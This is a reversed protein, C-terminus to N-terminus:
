GVTVGSGRGKLKRPSWYASAKDTDPHRFRRISAVGVARSVAAIAEAVGNSLQVDSCERRIAAKVVDKAMCGIAGLGVRDTRGDIWPMFAGNDVVTAVLHTKVKEIGAADRAPQRCHNGDGHDIVIGLICNGLNRIELFAAIGDGVHFHAFLRISLVGQGLVVTREVQLPGRREVLKIRSEFKSARNELANVFVNFNPGIGLSFGGPHAAEEIVQLRMAPNAIKREHRELVIGELRAQQLPASKIFFGVENTVNELYPAIVSQRHAHRHKDRFRVDSSTRVFGKEIGKGRKPPSIENSREEFSPPIGDIIEMVNRQSFGEATMSRRRTAEAQERHVPLILNLLRSRLKERALDNIQFPDLWPATLVTNKRARTVDVVSGSVKQNCGIGHQAWISLPRQHEDVFILLGRVGHRDTKLVLLAVAIGIKRPRHADHRESTLLVPPVCVQSENRYPACSIRIPGGGSGRNRRSSVRDILQGFSGHRDNSSFQRCVRKRTWALFLSDNMGSPLLCRPGIDMACHLSHDPFPTAGQTKSIGPRRSEEGIM